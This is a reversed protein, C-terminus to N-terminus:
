ACAGNAPVCGTGTTAGRATQFYITAGSDYLSNIREIIEPFAEAAEYDGDTNSCITGDVDFCYTKM